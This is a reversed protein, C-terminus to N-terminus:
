GSYSRNSASSSVVAPAYVLMSPCLHISFASAYTILWRRSATISDAIRSGRSKSSGTARNLVGSVANLDSYKRHVLSTAPEARQFAVQPLDRDGPGPAQDVPVYMIGAVPAHEPGSVPYVGAAHRVADERQATVSVADVRVM